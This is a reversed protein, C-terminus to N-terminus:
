TKKLLDQLASFPRRVDGTADPMEDGAMPGPAKGCTLPTGCAPAIPLALLLEEEALESLSVWGTPVSFIERDSDTDPEESLSFEIESGGSLSLAFGEMCRQCVLRPSAVVRVEVGPRGSALTMFSFSARLTGQPEALLDKVRPLESLPYDRHLVSADDALRRCDVLDPLGAAM